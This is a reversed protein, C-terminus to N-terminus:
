YPDLPEILSITDLRDIKIELDAFFDSDNDIETPITMSLYGEIEIEGDETAEYYHENHDNIVIIEYARRFIHLLRIQFYLLM